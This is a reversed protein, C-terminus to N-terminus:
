AQVMQKKRVSIAGLGICVVEIVSFVAPAVSFYRLSLVIGVLQWVFVGWAITRVGPADSRAMSGLMWLLWATFLMAATISLGFGVYFDGYSYNGHGDSFHVGNM